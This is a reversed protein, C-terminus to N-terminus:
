TEGIPLLYLVAEEQGDLELLNNLQDDLFAGVACAGLGMAAAALYLNQGVHGAELLVYRYSRERYRWRLRQFVASLIVCVNASGLFAQWLGARTIASRFDGAELQELAHERVAYHYIGPSVGAVDYVVPYLELPYLAGASPAARFEPGPATIGQAGHLLRSLAKLSLQDDTYSRISRRAELAQGVSLGQLDPEPLPIREADPYTKYRSPRDGWNPAVGLDPLGGPKSWQHYLEGIDVADAPLEARPKPALWGLLFGGAASLSGVIVQRRGVSSAQEQKQERQAPRRRKRSRSFRHSLYAAIRRRNLVMHAVVLGACIYGVEGHFAVEHLGFVDAILGTFTLYLGTLVMAAIVLYDLDRRKLQSNM